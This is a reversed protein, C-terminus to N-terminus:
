NPLMAIRARSAAPLRLEKSTTLGINLHIRLETGTLAPKATVRIATSARPLEMLAPSIAQNLSSSAAAILVAPERRM